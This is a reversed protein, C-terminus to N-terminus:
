INGAMDIRMAMAANWTSAYTVSLWRAKTRSKNDIYAQATSGKMYTKDNMKVIGEDPNTHIAMNLIREPLNDPRMKRIRQGGM